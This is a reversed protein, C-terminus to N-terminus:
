RTEVRRIYLLQLIVLFLLLPLRFFAWRRWAAGEIM